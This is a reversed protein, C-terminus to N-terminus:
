WNDVLTVIMLSVQTFNQLFLLTAAFRLPVRTPRQPQNGQSKTTTMPLGTRKRSNGGASTCTDVRCGKTAKTRQYGFKHDCTDLEGERLDTHHLNFQSTAISIMFVAFLFNGRIAALHRQTYTPPLGVTFVGHRYSWPLYNFDRFRFFMPRPASDPLVSLHCRHTETEIQRWVCVCHPDFTSESAHAVTRLDAYM